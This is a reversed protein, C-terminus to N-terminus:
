LHPVNFSALVLNVISVVGEGLILGSAMVILPTEEGRKHSRWYWNMLGGVTRALTFSPGNYMGIAVAIGGPVFSQWRRGKGVIRVVTGIAFVVAAGVAWELVMPPLGQGTVLRATFVWVFATPVQFLDGPVAYVSTYLKYVGASVVAGVASGILQGYFQADPAAGVLHGTKLDQMLDGAQQAGAESVAGAVLNILVANRNSHPIILAFCIQAIKSIGSVPNLDTEGLARVGMISLLLAILVAATTAYLPILSSFVIRISLICALTSLSLGILVTRNSILHEPAAENVDAADPKSPPTTTGQDEPTNSSRLPTYTYQRTGASYLRHLYPWCYAVAPRAVLWSLSVISDALMIALSVWIIWGKSGHEWDGVEGPAWGKAKALPSLVAWALVAGVLMHLTTAPGMILGQGVYGPSPNFTWLWNRALFHGFVPLNRLIPIFYTILTYVGSGAFSLLLLRLRDEWGGAGSEREEEDGRKRGREGHLVGIILATATGSPFRLKERVVVQKRLPVAFVVGFFALGLAWLVLKEGGLLVRGEDETLLYNLAPVVGVFGAALPMAGLAVAVTQVFVNEAPSFPYSLHPSLAKFAGFGLLSSPLSMMSVWGTQLGFYTNSFCVLVGILLGALLGRPTFNHSTPPFLQPSANLAHEGEEEGGRGGGEEEEEEEEATEQPRDNNSALSMAPEILKDCLEACRKEHEKCTEFSSSYWLGGFDIQELAKETSALGKTAISFRSDCALTRTLTHAANLTNRSQSIRLTEDLISLVPGYLHFLVQPQDLAIRDLFELAHQQVEDQGSQFDVITLAANILLERESIHHLDIMAYIDLTSADGSATLVGALWLVDRSEQTTSARAAIKGLYPLIALDKPFRTKESASGSAVELFTLLVRLTDLETVPDALGKMICATVAFHFSKQNFRIGYLEDIESLSDEIPIRGQLLVPIMRGNAFEGSSSIVQLVAELLALSCNFLAPPVLRVLSMALWFLQLIYRSSSPLNNMMKTLTTIIAIMMESDDEEVFRSVSNRLAVLVQYLLDDDVDENALCSMVAFARPQIAPNSQFATSAVLGMWRSRWYNAMDNSPAGAIIVELLLNTIAELCSFTPQGQLYRGDRAGVPLSFLLEIKPGSLSSLIAKLTSLNGEELPFSTCMSHVTNVLLSHVLIRVASSGSNFVMTIIHFVEPLFLQSQVKSDFSTALCLQLLICVENWVANEALYRTPRLSSRNLAKRLRSIIKGRATVTGFANVISGIAETKSSAFGASLAQKVLEDLFIDSLLDDTAIVSWVNQRFASYFSPQSKPGKRWGDDEIAIEILKRAITGVKERGKDSDNDMALVNKRLNPLWPGMYAINLHRQEHPSREWGVFFESLFDHTLQPESEALRKSVSIVHVESNLPISLETASVFQRDIKLQFAKCLACLLNYSALRLGHDVSALNVLCINLLTGPVDEPRILREFSRGVKSEKGQKAKAAKIAQLIDNKRPSTFFMVVKNNETRFGFASDDQTQISTAAEEIESIRFIDNLTATLSLGPITEQKRTTTVQMFQSGIKIVVEIKGKTKSLRTVPQFVFRSDTVVSITDKPLNLSALHFHSQLELLSGVLYYDVNQPHFSSHSNKAAIRLVRRFCKRYASNMNYVYVRSLNKYMESPTLTDLKRFLDDQPEDVGNYCTADVLVGFPRHWMRSAIKLYCFLLLDNDMSELEINRLILCIVPLGDARASIVAEVNRGANKMMFHQFRSYAPPINTSIQPRNWSIEMPAPGLLAVITNLRDVATSKQTKRGELESTISMAKSVRREQSILRQHVSDWHEYLFTVIPDGMKPSASITRLFSTVRIINKELFGNLPFMYPEKAGFLVNNALNQIVKAILLLGRRMEKTPVSTVLGESDPAVIAPCFFRLFIFAGVATFKADPYRSGVATLITHCIKRFSVPVQDASKLIGDVFIKTVIRLQAANRARAESSASTRSPDLELDLASSSDILREIVPQLTDKLYIAGKWRAYVSLMKTAVCTRRLLESENETSAVEHEILAKLLSLGMGRSDFINLLSMTMEDVCSSPCSDCLAVALNMNNVILELLVDYKESMASSSLSEFQTGQILINCLVHLFATRIPVDDHYGMGLSHKLGVDINASLLNSLAAIALERTSSSEERGISGVATDKRQDMPAGEHHLLSFFRNFYSQFLQIKLDSTEADSQADPPQLPLRHTLDVLARLCARDLDRHLRHMEDVRANSLFADQDDASSGPRSIWEYLIELLHNRIRVDHRLNLMEKKKTVGECLQCIKIKVRLVNADDKLANLYHALNLTLSGFDVSFLSENSDELRDVIAKLLSAAQEAFIMRSEASAPDSPGDLVIALEAELTRFLQLYLRPCLEAGLVDRIAERIIVNSCTLLELSQAMFRELLSQGIGDPSLRDIWRLGAIMSDDVRVAQSFDAICSGGLSALLGSYNRWEMLTKEDVQPQTSTRFMLIQDCIAQWRLFVTEWATLIGATPRTMKGLLKRLRKQFAVPGTLRFSQSSLETYPEFNRMITLSSRALDEMNETIHGEECFLALTSTITSCVALDSSCILTLFMVELSVSAATRETIEAGNEIMMQMERNWKYTNTKDVSVILLSTVKRSKLTDLRSGIYDHVFNVLTKLGQEQPELDILKKSAISLILSSSKWFLSGFESPEMQQAQDTILVSNDSMLKTAVSCALERINHDDDALFPSFSNFANFFHERYETSSIPMVEFLTLPRTALFEFISYLLEFNRAAESVQTKSRQGSRNGDNPLPRKRVANMTKSFDAFLYYNFGDLVKLKVELHIQIYHSVAIFLPNYRKTDYEKALIACAGYAASKFEIPSENDFCLPLLHDLVSSLKISSLSIFAGIMTHLDLLLSDAGLQPKKFVEERIENQVDLAYSLYASDTDTPFHRALRCLTILCFASANCRNSSRLNKRMKELFFARKTVSGSRPDGINGVVWFVDPILLILAFQFPWVLSRNRSGDAIAESMDILVDVSGDLRKRSTHLEIFEAPDNEIWSTILCPLLIAIACQAPKRLHLFCGCIEQIVLSLKRRNAWLYPIVRLGALADLEAKSGEAIVNTTTGLNRFKNQLFVFVTSWNSASLYEIVQFIAHELDGGKNIDGNGFRVEGRRGSSPDNSAGPVSLLSSNTLDWDEPLPILLHCLLELLRKALGDQLFSPTSIHKNEVPRKLRTKVLSLRLADQTLTTDTGTSESDPRASISALDTSEEADTPGHVSGKQDLYEWSACCCSALLEIVYLESLLTHGSHPQLPKFQKSLDDLLSTLAEIVVEISTKSVELLTARTLIVLEDGRIDYTDSGTRHPFKTTLRNILTQVLKADGNM